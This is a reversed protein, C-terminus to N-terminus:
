SQLGKLRDRAWASCHHNSALLEDLHRLRDEESAKRVLTCDSLAAWGPPWGFWSLKDGQVQAVVWDEGTPEHRVVDGTDIESM